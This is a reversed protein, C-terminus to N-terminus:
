ERCTHVQYQLSGDEDTIELHFPIVPALNKTCLKAFVKM